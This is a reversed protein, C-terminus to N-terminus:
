HCAAECRWATDERGMLADAKKSGLRSIKRKTAHQLNWIIVRGM